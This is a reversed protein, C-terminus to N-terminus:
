ACRTEPVSPHRTIGPTRGVAAPRDVLIMSNALTMAALTMWM